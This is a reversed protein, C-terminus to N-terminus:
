QLYRNDDGYYTLALPHIRAWRVVLQGEVSVPRRNGKNCNWSWSHNLVVIMDNSPGNSPWVRLEHLYFLQPPLTWDKAFRVYTCRPRSEFIAVIEIRYSLLGTCGTKGRRIRSCIAKCMCSPMCIVEKFVAFPMHSNCRNAHHIHSITYM